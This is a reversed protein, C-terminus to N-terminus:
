DDLKGESVLEDKIQEWPIREENRSERAVRSLHLDEMLEEYDEIPLIVATKQGEENTIYQLNKSMMQDAEKSTFKLEAANM